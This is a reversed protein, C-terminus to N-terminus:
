KTLKKLGIMESIGRVGNICWHISTLDPCQPDLPKGTMVLSYFNAEMKGYNSTTGDLYVEGCAKCKFLFKGTEM